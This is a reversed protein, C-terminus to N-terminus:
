RDRVRGERRDQRRRQLRHEDHERGARSAYCVPHGARTLLALILASPSGIIDVAWVVEDAVDGVRTMAATLDAELNAVKMSLVRRGDRDVVCIWHHTKGIDIGAWVRARTGIM